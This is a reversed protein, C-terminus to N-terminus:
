KVYFKFLKCIVRFVIILRTRLTLIVCIIHSILRYDQVYLCAFAVM